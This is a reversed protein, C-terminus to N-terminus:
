MCLVRLFYSHMSGFYGFDKYSFHGFHFGGGPILFHYFFMVPHVGYRLRRMIVDLEHVSVEEIDVMDVYNM